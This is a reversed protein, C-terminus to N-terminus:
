RSRANKVSGHRDTELAAARPAGGRPNGLRKILAPKVHYNEAM